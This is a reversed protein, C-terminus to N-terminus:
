MSDHTFCRMRKRRDERLEWCMMCKSEARWYGNLRSRLDREFTGIRRKWLTEVGVGLEEAIKMINERKEPRIQGGGNLCGSPCAM